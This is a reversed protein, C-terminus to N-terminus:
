SKPEEPAPIVMFPVNVLIIWPHYSIRKRTVDGRADRLSTDIIVNSFLVGIDSSAYSACRFTSLKKPTFFVIEYKLGEILEAPIKLAEEPEAEWQHSENMQEM